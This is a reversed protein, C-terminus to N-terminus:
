FSREVSRRDYLPMFRYYVELTMVALATGYLRGGKEAGPDNGFFWSGAEHGSTAQTAILHDRLRANFQEWIPGEYHCLAQAAYYNYYIEQDSPGWQGLYEVGRVLAPRQRNWGLYMRCLLGIATTSRRPVPTMYGYQAGEEAQVSDLFHSALVLAPTSVDLGALQGSKLAMFQWGTVTTDGPEGPTYRWGGGKRDQAYLVFQLSRQALERLQPDRTMGYSECLAITALAQAYMTGEQLDIGHPTVVARTSLYYLGRQVVDQHEGSQHTHGAGLFPLLALGTAGTTSTESGPNRCLGKCPGKSHDFRWGGDTHQHAALWRLGRAVAQESQANGGRQELLSQKLPGQRGETGGGGSPTDVPIFWDVPQPQRRGFEAEARLQEDVRVLTIPGTEVAAVPEDRVQEAPIPTDARAVSVASPEDLWQLDLPTESEASLTIGTASGVLRPVILALLLLAAFHFVASYAFSTKTSPRVACAIAQGLFKAWTARARSGASAPSSTSLAERNAARVASQGAGLGSRGAGVGTGSNAEATPASAGVVGTPSRGPPPGSTANPPQTPATM